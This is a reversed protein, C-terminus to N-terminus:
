VKWSFTMCFGIPCSWSTHQVLILYNMHLLDSMQSEESELVLINVVHNADFAGQISDICSVSLLANFQSPIGYIWNSWETGSELLYEGM